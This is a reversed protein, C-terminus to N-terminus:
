MHFLIISFTVFGNEFSERGRKKLYKAFLCECNGIFLKLALQVTHLYTVGKARTPSVSISRTDLASSM